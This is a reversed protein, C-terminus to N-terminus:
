CGRIDAMKPQTACCPGGGNKEREKKLLESSVGANVTVVANCTDKVWVIIMDKVQPGKIHHKFM